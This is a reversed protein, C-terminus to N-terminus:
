KITKLNEDCSKLDDFYNFSLVINGKMCVVATDLNKCEFQMASFFSQKQKTYAAAAFTSSECKSIYKKETKSPNKKNTFIVNEQVFGAYANTTLAIFFGFLYIKM